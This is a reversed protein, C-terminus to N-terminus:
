QLERWYVFGKNETDCVFEVRVGPTGAEGSAAGGSAIGRFATSRVTVAGLMSLFLRDEANSLSEFEEIQSRIASSEAERFAHGARQFRVIKAALAESMDLDDQESACAQALAVLVPGPACNLNVLGAGYVTLYPALRAYLARDIGKIMRLDDISRMRGNACGYPPSLSAYYGSEAGGTLMEDDEDIWDQIAAVLLGSQAANQKGEGRVLAVLARMVTESKLMMNLNLKGDEGVVGVNTAIVGGAELTHYNVSFSGGASLTQEQFLAKSRNWGDDCVGDWANTQNMAAMLAQQAGSEAMCRSEMRQWLREAATLAASVHSGVAVTLAALFFLVWLVLILVSGQRHSASPWPANSASRNLLRDV